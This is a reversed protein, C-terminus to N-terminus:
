RVNIDGPPKSQQWDAWMRMYLSELDKIQAGVDFMPMSSKNAELWKKLTHAKQPHSAFDIAKQIYSTLDTAVLESLGNTALMASAYRTQTTQGELTLLPCHGWLSLFTGTGSSMELPDLWMDALQQPWSENLLTQQLFILRSADVGAQTAFDRLRNAIAENDARLWLISQPTSKLITMWTNLTLQTMRYAQVFSCFVFADNPLQYDQRKAPPLTKEFPQTAFPTRPLYAINESFYHRLSAPILDQQGIFYQIFPAQLSHSSGLWHCQIPAPQYALTKPMANGTYGALDILIDIEDQYIRQSLQYPGENAVVVFHDCSNSIANTLPNPKADVLAYGYIEFQSRNHWQFMERIQLGVSHQNFDPSLYGIRLRTHNRDKFDFPTVDLVELQSAHEKAVRSQLEDSFNLASIEFTDVDNIHGQRWNEQLLAELKPKQSEVTQTQGLTALLYIQDALAQTNNPELHLIREYFNLADETQGMQRYSKALYYLSAVHNPHLEIVRQFHTIAQSTEALFQAVLALNYHIEWLNPDLQVASELAQKAQQYRELQMLCIGLNLKAEPFKPAISLAKQIAELAPLYNQQEIYVIGLNNLAEPHNPNLDLVQEFHLQAQELENKAKHVNGLNNLANEHKPNLALTQEFYPLAKDYEGLNLYVNGLNNCPDAYNPNLKSAQTFSDIAEQWQQRMAAICGVNNHILADTPEVDLYRNLYNYATNLDGEEFALMGLAQYVKSLHDNYELAKQFNQKAKELAHQAQHGYGLTLYYDAIKPAELVAKKSFEIAKDSLNQSLAIQALLDWAAHETENQLVAQKAKASANALDGQQFCHMAEQTLLTQPAITNNPSETM